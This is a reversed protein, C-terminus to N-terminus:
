RLLVPKGIELTKIQDNFSADSEKLAQELSLEGSEIRAKLSDFEKQDFPPTFAEVHYPVALCNPCAPRYDFDWRPGFRYVAVYMLKAQIENVGNALMATYFTWHVSTWSEKRTDCLYDHIVSAERYKGTWPSGILSWLPWPISAGDVKWGAPTVWEKGQPDVYAFPALLMATRGDHSM